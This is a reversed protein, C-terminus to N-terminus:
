LSQPQKDRLAVECTNRRMFSLYGWLRYLFGYNCSVFIRTRLVRVGDIYEDYFYRKRYGDFIEGRPYNPVATVVTVEHGWETLRRAWDSLRNQAAGTEPPYYQSLLLCRM